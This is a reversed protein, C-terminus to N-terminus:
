NYDINSDGIILRRVKIVSKQLFQKRRIEHIVVCCLNINHSTLALNPATVNCVYYSCGNMFEFHNATIGNM